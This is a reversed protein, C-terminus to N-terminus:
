SCGSQVGACTFLARTSVALLGDASTVLLGWFRPPPMTLRAFATAAVAVRAGATNDNRLISGCDACDFVIVTVTVFVVPDATVNLAVAASFAPNLPVPVLAVTDGALRVNVPPCDAVNDTVTLVECLVGEPCYQPSRVSVGVVPPAVKFAGRHNATRVVM